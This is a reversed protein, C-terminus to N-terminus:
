VSFPDRIRRIFIEQDFSEDDVYDTMVRWYGVGMKVQFETATDYATTANSQYEIHRAIGELVQASQFTSGGGAAKYKITPKNQKADNIIMLNHQRVKNITLSPRQDFDRARRIDNPWQVGNDADGEAFKLDELGRKRATGEWKECLEFRDKAQKLIKEARRKGVSSPKLADDEQSNDPTMQRIPLFSEPDLGEGQPTETYGM